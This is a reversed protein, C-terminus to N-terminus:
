KRVKQIEDCEKCIPFEDNMMFAIDKKHVEKDCAFCKM